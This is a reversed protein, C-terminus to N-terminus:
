IVKMFLQELPKYGQKLYIKDLMGGEPNSTHIVRAKVVEKAWYEFAEYLELGIRSKRYEPVVYWITESCQLDNNFPLTSSTGVIIGIIREEKIYLIVIAEKKNKLLYSEITKLVVEDLTELVSYSSEEKFSKM